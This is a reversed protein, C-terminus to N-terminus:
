LGHEAQNSLQKEKGYEPGPRSSKPTGALIMQGQEQKGRGLRSQGRLLSPGKAAEKVRDGERDAPGICSVTLSKQLIIQCSFEALMTM